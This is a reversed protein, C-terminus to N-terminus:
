VQSCSILEKIDNPLESRFVMREARTPHTFGILFAHLAQRGIKAAAQSLPSDPGSLRRRGARGYQPDGIVPHGISALHVRIQHTRGTALRCELLSAWSDLVRIVRYGTSAPKGGRKVVAMKKRNRTNRGINGSIEGTKKTPIGWVVAYYARELSHEAFQGALHRHALDNKAAVMLGSTNKDLRHVIGPRAEGGLGSLSEGCHAILANVLTRDPNGPAPHVVLGAPKDIVILQDDEHVVNLEMFQAAPKAPATPPVIIVWVEGQKVRQSPDTVKAGLLTVNGQEILAKIRTRSHAPFSQSLVKDLRGGATQRAIAV